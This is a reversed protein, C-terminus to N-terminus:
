LDRSFRVQMPQARGQVGCQAAPVHEVESPGIGFALADFPARTSTRSDGCDLVMGPPTLGVERGIGHVIGHEPSELACLEVGFEPANHRLADIQRVSIQDVIPLTRDGTPVNHDITGGTLDPRRVRRGPLRLGEFAQPSTVEHVLHLDVYLLDPGAAMRSVVHADWVKAFLTRPAM